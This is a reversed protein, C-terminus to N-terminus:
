FHSYRMLITPSGGSGINLFMVPDIMVNHDIGLFIIVCVNVCACVCVM